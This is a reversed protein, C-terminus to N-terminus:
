DKGHDEGKRVFAIIKRRNRKSPRGTGAAFGLQGAALKQMEREQERRRLSEESELYLQRAEAVPRRQGSLALVEIEFLATGARVTLRDGVNLHHAPKLRQVKGGEVAEAAMARTKFFRAAWLWKDLRVAPAATRDTAEHGTGAAM